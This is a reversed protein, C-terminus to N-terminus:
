FKAEVIRLWKLHDFYKGFHERAASGRRSIDRPRGSSATSKPYHDWNDSKCMIRCVGNGAAPCPALVHEVSRHRRRRRRRRNLCVTDDDDGFLPRNAHRDPFNVGLCCWKTRHLSTILRPQGHFLAFHLRARASLFAATEHQQPDELKPSLLYLM